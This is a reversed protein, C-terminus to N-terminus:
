KIQEYTTTMMNNSNSTLRAVIGFFHHNIMNAIYQAPEILVATFRDKNKVTITDIDLQFLIIDYSDGLDSGGLKEGANTYRMLDIKLPIVGNKPLSGPLFMVVDPDEKSIERIFGLTDNIVKNEM